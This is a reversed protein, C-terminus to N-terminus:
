SDTTAFSGPSTRGNEKGPGLDNTIANLIATILSLPLTRVGELTVPVPEGKYLIEWKRLTKVLLDAAATLTDGAAQSREFDELTISAPDYTITMKEPGYQVEVDTEYTNGGLNIPM